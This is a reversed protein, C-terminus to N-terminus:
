TDTLGFEKRVTVIDNVLHLYSLFGHCFSNHGKDDVLQNLQNNM